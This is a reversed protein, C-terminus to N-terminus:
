RIPASDRRLADFLRAASTHDWVVADGSDTYVFEGIPVTLSTTEGRVAWGLAALDLVGTDADVTVADATARPVTYWRVPNLWVAPDTLRSLLAALFLRQHEMRDLDARPTARSRVYGLAAAGSMQRCGAPLDLGALPDAIPEDPCLTVGGLADVLGAFGAFGIELYHDLRVGTAQEVTRTLLAAGGLTFAANIKDDGHGPIAVYSDRPLSVVTPAVGSGPAPLHVLLLTDTRGDGLNGGTSLDQQEAPTLDARSDSGVLLWTTGRGATPRDPYDAFAVTRRLAGDLWVAVGAAGAAGILVVLLASM